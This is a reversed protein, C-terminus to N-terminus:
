ERFFFQEGSFNAAIAFGKDSVNGLKANIILPQKVNDIHVLYWYNEYMSQKVKEVNARGEQPSVVSISDVLKYFEQVDAPPEEGQVGGTTWWLWWSRGWMNMGWDGMYWLPTHTWIMTSQNENANIRTGRLASEIRRMSVNLDLEKWHEIVLEALPVIDPAEGGVEMVFSFANGDPTQRFGSSGKTMGMEDLLRNAETLDFTSNIIQGPDAFGFYIADIIEGRNTALSLAKRFRVDQVVKRWDPDDYSLNLFIDTPTVHMNALLAKFGGLAENERYLPMRILAASERSFDVEGAITKMTVMEIDQVLTSEIRDIYPLQNGEADVKFYFPNREFIAVTDTKQVFKWPYLVPFGIAKSNTLAWNTVDMLTFLNVWEGPQFNAEAIAVELEAEDAYDKHFQKLYHAPKLLDTYGRWGQIALRIPFGGYPADFRMKFTFQDVVEFEFPNGSASGGSKLWAPFIPVLEENFLVDQVAFQVDAVTVPEGDSWRLGERMYFTFEKQDSSVEYGKLINGTIEEGLIGPTNLLPENNMVFVDADWEVVSTVTRLTGGYRGIEKDLLHPPMENTLKPEVPLREAVPPLGRGDLMPAQRFERIGVNDTTTPETTTTAAPTTTTIGSDVPDIGRRCGIVAISLLLAIVLVCPMTKKM